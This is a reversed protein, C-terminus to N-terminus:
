RMASAHCTGPNQRFENQYGISPPTLDRTVPAHNAVIQRLMPMLEAVQQELSARSLPPAGDVIQGLKDKVKAAKSEAPPAHCTAEGRRRARSARQREREDARHDEIDRRRRARQLKSDRKARCAPGCVRQKSTAKASRIVCRCETCRRCKSMAGVRSLGAVIASNKSSM